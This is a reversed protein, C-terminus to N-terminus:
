MLSTSSSNLGTFPVSLAKSTSVRMRETPKIGWVSIRLFKTSISGLVKPKMVEFVPRVLKSLTKAAPLSTIM